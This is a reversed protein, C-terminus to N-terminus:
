AWDSRQERRVEGSGREGIGVGYRSDGAESHDGQAAETGYNVFEDAREIDGGVPVLVYKPAQEDAILPDYQSRHVVKFKVANKKDIFQKKAQKGM